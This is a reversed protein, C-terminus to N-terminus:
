GRAYDHMRASIMMRTKERRPRLFPAPFAGSVDHYLQPGSRPLPWSTNHYLSFSLGMHKM